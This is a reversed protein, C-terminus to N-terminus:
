QSLPFDTPDAWYVKAPDNTPSIQILGPAADVSVVVYSNSRAGCVKTDDLTKVTACAAAEGAACAKRASRYTQLDSRLICAYDRDGSGRVMEGLTLTTQAVAGGLGTSAALIVATLIPAIRAM